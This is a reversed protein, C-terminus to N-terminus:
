KLIALASKLDDEDIKQYKAIDGLSYKTLVGKGVATPDLAKIAHRHLDGSYDM